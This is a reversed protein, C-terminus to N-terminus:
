GSRQHSAQSSAITSRMRTPVRALSCQYQSTNASVNAPPELPLSRGPASSRSAATTDRQDPARPCRSFARGANWAVKCRMSFCATTAGTNARCQGQDDREELLFARHGHVRDRATVGAGRRVQDDAIGVARKREVLLHEVRLLRQMELIRVALDRMRLERDAFPM